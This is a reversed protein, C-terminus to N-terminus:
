CERLDQHSGGRKDYGGYKQKQHSVTYDAAGSAYIWKKHPVGVHSALLTETPRGPASTSSLKPDERLISDV